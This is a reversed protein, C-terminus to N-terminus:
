RPWPGSSSSVLSGIMPALTVFFTVIALVAPISSGIALQIVFVVTANILSLTVGGAVVGGVSRTIEDLLHTFRDRRYLPVLAAASNKITQLSSLFYITLVVVMVFSSVAGIVGFGVKM